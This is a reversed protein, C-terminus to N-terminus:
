SKKKTPKRAGRARRPPTESGPPAAPTASPGPQTSAVGAAISTAATLLRAWAQVSRAFAASVEAALTDATHGGTDESSGGTGGSPAPAGGTGLATEFSTKFAAACDDISQKILATADELTEGLTAGAKGAETSSPTDASGAMGTDNDKPVCSVEKPGAVNALLGSVFDLAMAGWGIACALIGITSEDLSPNTFAM